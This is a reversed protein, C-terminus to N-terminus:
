KPAKWANRFRRQRERNNEPNPKRRALIRARNKAYYARQYETRDKM